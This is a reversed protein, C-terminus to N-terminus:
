VVKTRFELLWDLYVKAKKLDEDGNKDLERSLYKIVNGKCFGEFENATLGGHRMFDIPQIGKNYHKPNTPSYTDVKSDKSSKDVFKYDNDLYKDDIDDFINNIDELFQEKSIIDQSDIDYEYWSIQQNTSSEGLLASLTVIESETLYVPYLKSTM